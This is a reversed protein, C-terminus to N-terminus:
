RLYKEQVMQCHHINHGVAMWGLSRASYPHKGPFDAFDLMEDTMSEFLLITGERVTEFEEVIDILSRNIANCNSAFQDQYGDFELNVDVRRSACLARYAFFREVDVLHICVERITWKGPAYAHDILAPSISGFFNIVFDNNNQLAELLDDEKVLNFFYPCWHPAHEHYPRGIKKM